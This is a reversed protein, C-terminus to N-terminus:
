ISTQFTTKEQGWANLVMLLLYTSITTRMKRIQKEQLTVFFYLLICILPRSLAFCIDSKQQRRGQVVSNTMRVIPADQVKKSIAIM